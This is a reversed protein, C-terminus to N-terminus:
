LDTLRQKRVKPWVTWYDMARCGVEKRGRYRVAQHCARRECRKLRVRILGSKCRLFLKNRVLTPESFSFFSNGM